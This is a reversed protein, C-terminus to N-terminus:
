APTACIFTVNGRWATESNTNLHYGRHWPRAGHYKVNVALLLQARVKSAVAKRRPVEREGSAFPQM